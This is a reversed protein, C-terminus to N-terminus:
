VYIIIWCYMLMSQVLANVSSTVRAMFSFCNNHLITNFTPLGLQLM